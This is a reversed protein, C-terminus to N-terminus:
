GQQKQGEPNVLNSELQRDAFMDAKPRTPLWIIVSTGKDPESELRISGDLETVLNQTIFLGLGTGKGIEKTTFFSEFAREAVDPSMGIGTDRIQIKVTDQECARTIELIKEADDPKATMADLANIIVNLLIQELSHPNLWVTPLQNNRVNNVTVTRMRKDYQILTLTNEILEDIDSWRYESSSPRSFTLMRKLIDSIRNIHKLMVSLQGKAEESPTKRTLYQVVSSLSALPNGIEHAIGAAMQGIAVMKERQAMQIRSVKLMENIATVQETQDRLEGELQKHETMDTGVIVYGLIRQDGETVSCAKAEIYRPHASRTEFKVVSERAIHGDGQVLTRIYEKLTLPLQVPTPSPASPPLDCWSLAAPNCLAIAGERDLFMLGENMASIVAQLVEFSRAAEREKATMRTIIMRTLYQSLFVTLSFAVFAGLVYVPQYWLETVSFRLPHSGLWGGQMAENAALVGYLGVATFGVIGSLGTPLMIAAIIVHFVYFLTFPNVIGGAFYLVLTLLLLDLEIQVMGFLIVQRRNWSEKRRAIVVYGLNCVFLLGACVLIPIGNQIVAVLYRATLTCILIGIMAIWRLDILWIIQELLTERGRQAPVGFIDQNEKIKGTM